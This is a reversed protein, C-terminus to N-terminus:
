NEHKLKRVEIGPRRAAEEDERVAEEESRVSPIAIRVAAESRDAGLQMGEGGARVPRLLYGDIRRFEEAGGHREVRPKAPVDRPDNVATAVFQEVKEAERVDTQVFIAEVGDRKILNATEVGVPNVEGIVVKAGTQAFLLATARGIGRSGGTVLAVKDSFNFTNVGV